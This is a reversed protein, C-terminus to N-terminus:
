RRQRSRLREILDLQSAQDSFLGVDCPLQPKNPRLPEGARRKAVAAPSIHGAGPLVHQAGAATQDIDRPALSLTSHQKM